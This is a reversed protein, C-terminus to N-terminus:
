TTGHWWEALTQGSPNAVTTHEGAVLCSTPSTCAVSEFAGNITPSPVVSWSSGDWSEVLIRRGQTLLNTSGVAVCSTRSTCAIAQLVSQVGGGVIPSPVVSWATGDWSEVLGQRDPNYVDGQDVTGVAICATPSTCAVSNLLSMERGPSPSPIVSWSVGDWSEVLTRVGPDDGDSSDYNGAAVCSTPSGCAVSALWTAFGGPPAPTSVLTWANGNWSEVLASEVGATSTWWGVAVCSAPLTCVVAQLSSPNGPNPVPVVSWSSGDWSEVLARQVKPDNATGSSGVAVCSTRSTCAVSRLETDTGPSPARVVSWSTGNRLEVLSHQAEPKDQSRFSGVAVCSAPATCAVSHLVSEIGPSPPSAVSRPASSGASSRTVLRTAVLGIGAVLVV